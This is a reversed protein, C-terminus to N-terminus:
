DFDDIKSNSKHRSRRPKKDSINGLKDKLDRNCKDIMQDLSLKKSTTHMHGLKLPLLSLQVPSKNGEIATATYILGISVYDKISKIFRDSIKSIHIFQTSKDSLEVIIGNSLIKTVKVNYKQGISLEM